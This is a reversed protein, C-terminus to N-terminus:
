AAQLRPLLSTASIKGMSHHAVKEVTEPSGPQGYLALGRAVGSYGYLSFLKM